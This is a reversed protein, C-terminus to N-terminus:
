YGRAVLYNGDQVRQRHKEARDVDETPLVKAYKEAKTKAALNIQGKKYIDISRGSLYLLNNDARGFICTEGQCVPIGQTSYM